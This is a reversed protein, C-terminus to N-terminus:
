SPLTLTPPTPRKSGDVGAGNPYYIKEVNYMTFSLFRSFFENTKMGYIFLFLDSM